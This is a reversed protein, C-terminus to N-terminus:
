NSAASYELSRDEIAREMTQLALRVSMSEAADGSLSRMGLGPGFPFPEDPGFEARWIERCFESIVQRLKAPRSEFEYVHDACRDRFRDSLDHIANTTFVILSRPPQGRKKIVDLPDLWAVEAAATMHNCENAVLVKWGSGCLPTRYLQDIANIVEAKGMDGSSIEYLGGLEREDVDCGLLRALVEATATKGRGTAGSLILAAPRPRALFRRLRDTVHPQGRIDDLTRPAYKELLSVAAECELLM